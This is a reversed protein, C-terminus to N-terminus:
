GQFTIQDFMQHDAWYSIDINKKLDVNNELLDILWKKIIIKNKNDTSTNNKFDYSTDVQVNLFNSIKEVLSDDQYFFVIKTLDLGQLYYCQPLSHADLYITHFIWNKILDNQLLVSLDDGNISRNNPIGQSGALFECVASIWRETPDRLIVLKTIDNNLFQFNSPQWDKFFAKLSSSANKPVNVYCHKNDSSLLCQGITHGTATPGSCLIKHNVIEFKFEEIMQYTDDKDTKGTKMKLTM